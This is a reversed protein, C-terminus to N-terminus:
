DDKTKSDEGIAKLFREELTDITYNERIEKSAALGFRQLIDADAIKFLAAALAEVDGTSFILGTEGEKVYTNAGVTDSTITALGCAMAEPVVMGIAENYSPLVLVDHDLYVSRMEDHPVAERHRVVEGLGLKKAHGLIEDKLGGARGILTLEFQGGKENLIRLAKFLDKHNKYGVFRANMLIRLVGKEMFVKDPDPFFRDTDVPVPILCVPVNGKLNSEFFIRGQETFVFVKNIHRLNLKLYWWFIRMALHSIINKPWKQTESYLFLKVEPHSKKYHLAQVFLFRFFDLTVVTDINKDRIKENFNKIYSPTLTELKLFTFIKALGLTKCVVTISTAKGIEVPERIDPHFFFTPAVEAIKIIFGDLLGHRATFLVTKTKM